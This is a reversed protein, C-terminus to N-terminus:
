PANTTSLERLVGEETEELLILPGKYWSEPRESLYDDQPRSIEADRRRKM